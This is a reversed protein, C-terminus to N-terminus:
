ATKSKTKTQCIESKKFKEPIISTILDEGVYGAFFATAPSNDVFYGVAGGVVMSGLIGLFLKGEIKKPLEIQNDKATERVFAGLAGCILLLIAEELIM